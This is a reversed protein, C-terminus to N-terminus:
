NKKKKKSLSMKTDKHLNSINFDGKNEMQVDTPANPTRADLHEALGKKPDYNVAKTKPNVKKELFHPEDQKFPFGGKTYKMAYGM